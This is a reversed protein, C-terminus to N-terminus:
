KFDIAGSAHGAPCGWETTAKGMGLYNDQKEIVIMETGCIDCRPAHTLMRKTIVVRVAIVTVAIAILIVIVRVDM